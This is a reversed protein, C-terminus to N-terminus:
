YPHCIKNIKENFITHPFLFQLEVIHSITLWKELFQLIFVQGQKRNYFYISNFFCGGFGVEGGTTTSTNLWVRIAQVENDVWADLDGNGDVDVLSVSKSVGGIREHTFISTHGVENM